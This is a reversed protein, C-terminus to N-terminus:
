IFSFHAYVIQWVQHGPLELLRDPSNFSLLLQLEGLVHDQGMNEAQSLVITVQLPPYLVKLLLVLLTAHM